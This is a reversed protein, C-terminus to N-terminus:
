AMPRPARSRRIVRGRPLAGAIALIQLAVLTAAVPLHVEGRSFLAFGCGLTAVSAALPVRRLPFAEAAVSGAGIVVTLIAVPLMIAFREPRDVAVAGVLGFLSVAVLLGRLIM